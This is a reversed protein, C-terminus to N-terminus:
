KGKFTITTKEAKHKNSNFEGKRSRIFYGKSLPQDAYKWSMLRTNKDSGKDFLIKTDTIAPMSVEYKDNSVTSKIRHKNFYDYKDSGVKLRMKELDKQDDTLQLVQGLRHTMMHNMVEPPDSGHESQMWTTLGEPSFEYILNCRIDGKLMVSLKVQDPNEVPDGHSLIQKMRYGSISGLKNKKYAVPEVAIAWGDLLGSAKGEEKLFVEMTANAKIRAIYHEGEFYAFYGAGSGDHLVPLMNKGLARRAKKAGTDVEETTVKDNEAGEDLKSLYHQDANSLRNIAFTVEKGSERRLTLMTDTKSVLEAVIVKGQSNTWERPEALCPLVALISFFLPWPIGPFKLTKITPTPQALVNM